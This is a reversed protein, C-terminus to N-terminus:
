NKNPTVRKDLPLILQYDYGDILSKIKHYDGNVPLAIRREQIDSRIAELDIITWQDRKALTMFDRLRKYYSAYKELYDQEEGKENSYYRHWTNIITAKSGQEKALQTVLDGLDYCGNTLIKSAHLNGFKLFVKPNLETQLAEKYNTLFNNRMYSIRDAHSDERWRTYIDWSIELDEVIKKTNENGRFHSLYQQVVPEKQIEDFLRIKSDPINDKVYWSAIIKSAQEKESKITEYDPSDTVFTLLEDMFFLTSSYYEQDLGWINMDRERIAQLFYADELGDFFPIPIEHDEELAYQTTFQKLNEVTTSPPTSLAVLKKASYPGVEFATHNFGAKHLMPILRTILQSTAKSGHREGFMVFQSKSIIRELMARGEGVIATDTITFYRTKTAIYSADIIPAPNTKEVKVAVSDMPKEKCSFFLVIISLTIFSKM